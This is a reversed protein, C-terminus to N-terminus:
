TLKRKAPLGETLIHLIKMGGLSRGDVESLKEQPWLVKRLIETHGCSREEVEMFNEHPRTVKQLKGNFKGGTLFRQTLKQKAPLGQTLKQWSKTGGTSKGDVEKLERHPWFIKWWSGHFKRAALLGETLKTHLWSFKQWGKDVNWVMPFCETLKQSIEMRGSSRRDVNWSITYNGDDETLKGHLLFVKRWSGEVKQTAPSRGDVKDVKRTSSLSEMVNTLKGNRRSFNQGSRDVKQATLLCEKLKHWRDTHGTSRWYNVSPRRDALFSLSLECFTQRSCLFNVSTWPLDGPRKTLQCFKFSPWGAARFTWLLQCFM